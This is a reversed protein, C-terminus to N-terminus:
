ARWWGLDREPMARRAKQRPMARAVPRIEVTRTRVRVEEGSQRTGKKRDARAVKWKRSNQVVAAYLVGCASTM